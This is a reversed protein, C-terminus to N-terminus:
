NCTGVYRFGDNLSGPSWFDRSMHLSMSGVRLTRSEDGTFGLEVEFLLGARREESRNSADSRM